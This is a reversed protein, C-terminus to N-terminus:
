TGGQVSEHFRVEYSQDVRYLPKAQGEAPREMNDAESVLATLVIKVGMFEGTFNDVALRVSDAIDKAESYSAAVISVSFIAVPRGITGLLDRDRRTGTRRYVVLPFPANQDALVPYVGATTAGDIRSRLWKEPSAV